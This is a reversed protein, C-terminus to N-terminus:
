FSTDYLFAKQVSGGTNQILRDTGQSALHENM